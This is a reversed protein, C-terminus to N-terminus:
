LIFFYMSLERGAEMSGLVLTVPVGRKNVHLNILFFSKIYHPPTAQIINVSATVLSFLRNGSCEAGM